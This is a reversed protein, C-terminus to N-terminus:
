EVTWAGVASLQISSETGDSALSVSDPNLSLVTTPLQSITIFPIKGLVTPSSNWEISITKPSNGLNPELEIDMRWDYIDGNTSAWEDDPWNEFTNLYTSTGDWNDLTIIPNGEDISPIFLKLSLLFDTSNSKKKLSVLANSSDSEKFLKLINGRGTVHVVLDDTSAGVELTTNDFNEGWQWIPNEPVKVSFDGSVSYDTNHVTFNVKKYNFGQYPPNAVKIKLEANGTGSGPTITIGDKTFEAM